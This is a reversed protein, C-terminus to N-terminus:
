PGATGRRPALEALRRQARADLAPAPHRAVLERLAVEEADPQGLARECAAIGWLIEVELEGGPRLALARRYLDLATRPDELQDLEISAAAAGAIYRTWAEGGTAAVRAYLREARRWQGRRRLRNARELLDVGAPARGARAPGAAPPGDTAPLEAPPDVRPSAAATGPAAAAPAPAVPALRDPPLRGSRVRLLAAASVGALACLIAAAAAYRWARSPTSRGAGAERALAAEVLAAAQTEGIRQAPGPAADLRPLRIPRSGPRHTM